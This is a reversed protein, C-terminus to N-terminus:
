DLIVNIADNNLEIIEKRIKGYNIPEWSNTDTNYTYKASKYDYENSLFDKNNLIENINESKLVEFSKEIIMETLKDSLNTELEFEITKEGITHKISIKRQEPKQKNRNNNLLKKLGKYLQCISFKLIDYTTNILLGSVILSTQNQSIYILIDNISSGSAYEFDSDPQQKEFVIEFGNLNSKLDLILDNPIDNKCQIVITDKMNHNTKYHCTVLKYVGHWPTYVDIKSYISAM